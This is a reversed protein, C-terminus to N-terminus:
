IDFMVEAIWGDGSEEFRVNHYTAAKIMVRREHRAIDFAEGRVTATLSFDGTLIADVERGIFGYTDFHFILENLYRVLLGEPSDSTVSVQLTNRTEVSSLDTILSYMGAAADRLAEQRSAGTARVGADGSIDLVEFSM